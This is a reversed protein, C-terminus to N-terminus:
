TTRKPVARTTDAHSKRCCHALGCRTTRWPRSQWLKGRVSPSSYVPRSSPNGKRTWCANGYRSYGRDVRVLRARHPREDFEGNRYRVGPVDGSGDHQASYRLADTSVLWSLHDFGIEGPQGYIHVGFHATHGVPEPFFRQGSNVFDGHIRLRRYAAQRLSAEKDGTFHTDPHVMGATGDASMHAWVQCMFARYLDPQTGTLLPYMQPSGFVAVQASTNTLEGLVYRYVM